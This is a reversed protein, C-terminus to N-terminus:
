NYRKYWKITELLGKELTFKLKFKIIKKLKGINVRRIPIMTPKTPDYKINQKKKNYIKSLFKIIKKLSISQGSAVNLIMFKFPKNILKLVISVFDDIYIFDKIDKGDGWIEVTKKTEFKRILSPIVKSRVLDFKDNPGFINGPRIILINIKDKYMQCIKESFIKMWGVNFYKDFLSYDVDKETMAKISVPYVTNSSIFIFKKVNNESSAKLINLNMIINDDVHFLPNKQMVMAGSSVAASMIVIDMSRTIERCFNLNKLNGKFYKVGNIKYFEKNKFFTSFIHSKKKNIKKLINTGIFGSGGIIIIKNKM